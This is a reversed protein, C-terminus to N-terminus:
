MVKNFAAAKSRIVGIVREDISKITPFYYFNVIKKQGIRRFRGAAQSLTTPNWDLEAAVATNGATLTLGFGGAVYNVILLQKKKAQFDKVYQNRLKLPTDGIIVGPKIKRFKEAYAKLVSKHWGFIVLQKEQELIEACFESIPKFAKEAQLRRHEALAPTIPVPIDANLNFLLQGLQEEYKQVEKAIDKAVSHKEPLQVRIWQVPPLEEDGDELTYRFYFNKRIIKRLSKPNKVGFYKIAWPTQTQFSYNRV